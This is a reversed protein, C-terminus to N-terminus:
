LRRGAYREVVLASCECVRTYGRRNGVWHRTAPGQVSSLLPIEGWVAAYNM